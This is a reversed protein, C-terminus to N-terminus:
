PTAAPQWPADNARAEAVYREADEPLLLRQERLATAAERVREVYEAHTPYRERIPTRPDSPDREIPLPLFSGSRACLDPAPYSPAFVNWATYTALPVAIPPLRLGALENGDADVQPLTAGYVSGEERPPDVWDGPIRIRNMRDAVAANPLTPFRLKELPVLTADALLPIRSAPPERGESVWEDLAVLLARLAANPRHPNGRNSCLQDRILLGGAHETGAIM